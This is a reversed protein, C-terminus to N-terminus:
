HTWLFLIVSTKSEFMKSIQFFRRPCKQATRRLTTLISSDTELHILLLTGFERKESREPGETIIKPIKLFFSKACSDFSCELYGSSKELFVNKPFLEIVPNNASNSPSPKPGKAFSKPLNKLVEFQTDLPTKPFLQKSHFSVNM